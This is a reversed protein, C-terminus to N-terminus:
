PKDGKGRRDVRSHLAPLEELQNGSAECAALFRVSERDAPIVEGLDLTITKDRPEAQLLEQFESM